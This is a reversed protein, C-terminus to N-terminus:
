AAIQDSSAPLLRWGEIKWSRLGFRVEAYSGDTAEVVGTVGAFAPADEVQVLTGPKMTGRQEVMVDHLQRQVAREARRRMRESKILAIRIREAAAHTEAARIAKMAASERAEEARLGAVERESIKPVRGCYTFISFAPHPSVLLRTIAALADLEYERAFVFTPLIPVEVEIERFTGRPGRQKRRLTRVPTWVDFKSAVLSAVVALTQGGSMRLICWRGLKLLGDRSAETM